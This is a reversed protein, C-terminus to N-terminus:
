FVRGIHWRPSMLSGELGQVVTLFKFVCGMISPRRVESWSFSSRHQYMQPCFNVLCQRHPFSSPILGFIEIVSQIFVRVISLVVMSLKPLPTMYVEGSSQMMTPIPVRESSQTTADRSDGQSPNTVSQRGRRFSSLSIKGLIRRAASPEESSTSGQPYENGDELTLEPTGFSRLHAPPRRPTPTTM